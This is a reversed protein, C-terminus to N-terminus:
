ITLLARITPVSDAHADNDLLVEKKFRPANLRPRVPLITVTAKHGIPLRDTCLPGNKEVDLRTFLGKRAREVREIKQMIRFAIFGTVPPDELGM